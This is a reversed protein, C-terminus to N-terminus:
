LKCWQNVWLITERLVRNVCWSMMKCLLAAAEMDGVPSVLEFLAKVSPDSKQEQVLDSHLISKLPVPVIVAKPEVKDLQM